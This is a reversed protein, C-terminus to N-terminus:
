KTVHWPFPQNNIIMLKINLRLKRHVFLVVHAPGRKESRGGPTVGLTHLHQELTVGPDVHEVVLASAGQVQSCVAATHLDALEEELLIGKNIGLVLGAESSEVECGGLAVSLKDVKQHGLTPSGDLGQGDLLLGGEVQGCGRTLEGGALSQDVKVRHHIPIIVELLLGDVECSLIVVGGHDLQEQLHPWGQHGGSDLIAVSQSM